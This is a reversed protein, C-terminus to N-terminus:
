ESKLTKLVIDITPYHKSHISKKGSIWNSITVRSVGLMEALTSKDIHKPNEKNVLASISEVRIEKERTIETMKNIEYYRCRNLEPDDKDYYYEHKLKLVKIEVLFDIIENYRSNWNDMMVSPLPFTNEERYKRYYPFYIYSYLLFMNHDAKLSQHYNVYNFLRILFVRLKHERQKAFPSKKIINEILERDFLELNANEEIYFFKKKSLTRYNSEIRDELRKIRKLDGKYNSIKLLSLFRSTAQPVSLRAYFYLASLRLFKDNTNGSVFPLFSREVKSIRQEEYLTRTVNDGKSFRERLIKPIHDYLFLYVPNYYHINTINYKIPELNTPSLQRKKSPIRLSHKPTPLLEVSGIKSVKSQLIMQIISFPLLQNLLYYCHLGRPSLFVLSPYEGEMIKVVKNYKQILTDNLNYLDNTNHNDIDFGIVRTAYTTYFGITEKEVLAKEILNYSLRGEITRWPAPEFLSQTEYYKKAFKKEYPYFVQSFPHSNSKSPKM